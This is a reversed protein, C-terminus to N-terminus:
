EVSENGTNSNAPAADPEGGTIDSDLAQSSYASVDVDVEDEVEVDDAIEDELFDDDEDSEEEALARAEERSRNREKGKERAARLENGFLDGLRLPGDDAARTNVEKVATRTEQREKEVVAARLSMTIKHVNSQISKIRGEVEQGVQVVEEPTKIREESM